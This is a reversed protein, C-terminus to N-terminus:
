NRELVANCAAIAAIIMGVIQLEARNKFFPRQAFFEYIFIPLEKVVITFIEPHSARDLLAPVMIEACELLSVEAPQLALARKLALEIWEIDHLVPLAPYGESYVPVALPQLVFSFFLNLLM